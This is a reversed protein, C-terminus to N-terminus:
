FLTWNSLANYVAYVLFGVVLYFGFVHSLVILLITGRSLKLRRLKFLYFLAFSILFYPISIVLVNFFNSASLYQSMVFAREVAYPTFILLANFLLGFLFSYIYIM